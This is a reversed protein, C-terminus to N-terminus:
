HSIPDIVSVKEVSGTTPDGGKEKTGEEEAPEQQSLAAPKEAPPSYPEYNSPPAVEQRSHPVADSADSSVKWVDPRIDGNKVDNVNKQIQRQVFSGNGWGSEGSGNLDMKEDRRIHKLAAVEDSAFAHVNPEIGVEGIDKKKQDKQAFSGFANDATGNLDPKEDRRIHKLPSVEDSAFAHVNPEM